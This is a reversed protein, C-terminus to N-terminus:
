VVLETKNRMYDWYAKSYKEYEADVKRTIRQINSKSLRTKDVIRELPANDTAALYIGFDRIMYAQKKNM